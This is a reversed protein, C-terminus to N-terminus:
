PTATVPLRDLGSFTAELVIPMPAAPATGASAAPTSPTSGADASPPSLPILSLTLEVRRAAPTAIDIAGTETAGRPIVDPRGRDVSDRLMGYAMPRGDARVLITAPRITLDVDGGNTIEYRLLIGTQTRLARFVATVRGATEHLEIAPQPAAAPPATQATAPTLDHPPRPAAVAATGPAPGRPAAPTGATTGQTGAPPSAPAPRAQTVVFVVDATRPGPGVQLDWVTTAGGVWLVMNTTGTDTQPQLVVDFVDGGRHVPTASVIRPDGIAVTEIRRDARVITAFGPQLHLVTRSTTQGAYITIAPLGAAPVPPILPGCAPLVV